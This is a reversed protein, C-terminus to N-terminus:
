SENQQWGWCAKTTAKSHLRRTHALTHARTNIANQGLSLKWCHPGSWKASKRKARKQKRRKLKQKKKAAAIQLDEAHATVSKTPLMDQPFDALVVCVWNVATTTTYNKGNSMYSLTNIVHSIVFFYFIPCCM